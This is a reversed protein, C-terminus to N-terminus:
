SRRSGEGRARQTEGRFHDRRWLPRPDPGPPPGVAIKSGGALRFMAGQYGEIYTEGVYAGVRRPLKRPEDDQTDRILASSTNQCNKRANQPQELALRQGPLQPNHIVMADAHSLLLHLASRSERAPPIQLEQSLSRFAASGSSRAQV